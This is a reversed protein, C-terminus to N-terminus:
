HKGGYASWPKRFQAYFGDALEDQGKGSGLLSVVPILFLPVLTATFTPDRWEGLSQSLDHWFQAFGGAGANESGEYLTNLGWHLLGGAYGAAMGWFAGKETTGKWYFIFGIAIAPPVVM